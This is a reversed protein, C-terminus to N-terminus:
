IFALRDKLVQINAMGSPKLTYQGTRIGPLANYLKYYFKKQGTKKEPKVGRIAKAWNNLLFLTRLVLSETKVAINILM